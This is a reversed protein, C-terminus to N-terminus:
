ARLAARRSQLRTGPQQRSLRRMSEAMTWRVSACCYCCYIRAATAATCERLLPLLVRACCHGCASVKHLGLQRLVHAMSGHAYWPEDIAPTVFEYTAWRRARLNLCHRLAVEVPGMAADGDAPAMVAAAHACGDCGLMLWDRYQMLGIPLREPPSKRPHDTRLTPPNFRLRRPSEAADALPRLPSHLAAQASPRLAAAALQKTLAGELM